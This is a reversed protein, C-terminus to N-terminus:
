GAVVIDIAFWPCTAEAHELEAVSIEAWALDDRVHAKGYRVEFVEPSSLECHRTGSCLEHDVTVTIGQGGASSGAM